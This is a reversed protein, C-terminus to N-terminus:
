PATVNEQASVAMWTGNEKFFVDTFRQHRTTKGPQTITDLGHLVAANGTSDFDVTQESLAMAFPEKTISALEKARDIVTGNNLIHQFSPSLIAAVTTKDGNLLATIWRAELRIIDDTPSPAAAASPRASLLLAAFAVALSLTVLSLKKM